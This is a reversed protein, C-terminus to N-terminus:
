RMLYMKGFQKKFYQDAGSQRLKIDKGNIQAKVRYLYVGNALPSGFEDTGDWAFETINRGIYIQGLEDETIERVVKGTVTMIQILIEDPVESGTLTFVFRTSTSFPNPYNMLNTITSEHIVEFNVLYEIDGSLNGSKDEGQVQLTYTGDTTFEAPWIIKFRKNQSNAPIWQMVTTGTGDVFPIRKQNGLPDTLYIGFYSTDADNDMILFENDDKLTIVIESNPDVIDGNLIHRGNFTVDLLPNEDDPYVYFPLHLLNNFHEQEPQDTITTSGNIYPNVEMWLISEGNLGITNITITDRLTEGVRLSDQRPYAIPHIVNNKDEVWYNILLSDMDVTFINKVDVAFQINEGEQISDGMASWTYATTGDIAAEPVPSYLVHLRDVQAPTLQITDKYNVKLRIYPYQSADIFNALDIISDNATFATDIQYQFSKGVDYVKISLITTDTNPTEMPDQKWHVSGWEAVPGIYPTEEEGGGSAYLYALLDLNETDTQAVLEIKSSLDGKKIFFVFPYEPRGPIISDSGLAAFTAYMDVSDLANWSSYSTYFPSYIMLYHGDPVQNLVMDQFNELDQLVGERFLFYNEVRNRCSSENNFNGFDHNPNFTTGTSNTWKTGWPKHTNPDIVVVHLMPAYTCVGYEQQIGNITYSSSFPDMTAGEVFCTLESVKPIFNRTRTSRDYDIASFDNDKFQFFHDQGWGVKNPIYQFSSERWNTDGDVVCRWFYVVSDELVLQNQTNNSTLIWDSPNVTKVGGLGSVLAYRHFPSPNGEFDITDIEFRYTNFDAIPNTTSGMVTVSDDPIVAFKYPIVPIIGDFELFLTKTIQNNGIEDYVEDYFSPLDVSITFNNIGLSINPQLPFKLVVEREYHLNPIKLHYVSDIESEPFDRIVEIRITDTISHGLNKIKIHMSISDVTLDPDDPSFWVYEELLEIEPKVHWNLRLMPDGNLIMQTCTTELYLNNSNVPTELANITASLQESLTKAYGYASMEKYLRNSYINLYVDYGVNVSAIYAIAGYDPILVFDESKSTGVQFINGNYCSNVIMVPYKKNNNWNQPEDLNIEFGSSTGTSHGFYSMLSVGKSIRSTIENLESPTLPNSDTKYISKVTGGFLSDSIINAMADMYNKFQIQQNPNAGGVFHIIHKQWDKNPTNYIDTSDQEEEYEIVKNLYEQLETVNKAPVRGTPVLPVWKKTGELGTTICIDSAPEGFSPIFSQAFYAPNNRTGTVGGVTAQKIGKGLLLLGVPKKTSLNYIYHVFRRIGNIHGKIGGGFQQYLEIINADIVNYGGGQPSQRYTIYNDSASQLAPHTIILLAEELSMTSFDTFFGNGNVAILTDVNTITSSSQVFVRQRQGNTNNSILFQHTSGSTIVEVKKPTAGGEVFVIPNSLTSTLDIRIFSSPNNEVEFYFKDQSGFIPIRPYEFQWYSISQYDTTAGQDDIIQAKLNSLGSSPLETVPFDTTLIVGKYGIWVTDKLVYNNPGITWKIHHNGLGTYTANSAGISMAKFKVQPAGPNQYPYYIYNNGLNFNFGGIGNYKYHAWGEGITYFSSSGQSLRVGEQYEYRYSVWHKYFVYEEPTFNSINASSEEIYRLNNNYNNWTFFYEITDNYLSYFPNGIDTKNVYVTSDLWGDNRETVFLIYDGPDLSSDGGDEIYLPIERERGFIQINESSFSQVPIGSNVLTQYDIRYIGTPNSTETARWPIVNQPYVKFSYYKQSYDIWENGYTQGFVPQFICSLFLIITIIKNM